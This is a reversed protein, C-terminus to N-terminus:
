ADAPQPILDLTQGNEDPLVGLIRRMDALAARGTESITALSTLAVEPNAAAAYRGGDAQVIIVSLSHAVIDHMERAIRARENATALRAQQDRELELRAARERLTETRDLRTRRLLGVSWFLLVATAAFAFGIGVLLLAKLRGSSNAAFAISVLLGGLFAGILGLREAWRPGHVTISYLALII